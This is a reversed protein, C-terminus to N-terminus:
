RHRSPAVPYVPVRQEGRGTRGSAADKGDLVVVRGAPETVRHALRERDVAERDLPERDAPNGAAAAAVFQELAM